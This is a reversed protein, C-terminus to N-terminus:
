RKELFLTRAWTKARELEGEVLPGETGEVYFGEPPAVLEGGKKKLAGAIHKAAYASEGALSASFSLFSSMSKMEAKTLRTDFAAVQMGKLGHAPISELFRRIDSVPSFRQTPSGVILLDLGALHDSTVEAVHYAGVDPLTGLADGIARAIQQTNGYFSDYVVLIKM